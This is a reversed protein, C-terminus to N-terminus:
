SGEREHDPRDTDFGCQGVLLNQYRVDRMEKMSNSIVSPQLAASRATIAHGIVANGSFFVSPILCKALLGQGLSRAFLLAQAVHRPHAPRSCNPGVLAMQHHCLAFDLAYPWTAEPVKPSTRGWSKRRQWGARVYSKVHAVEAAATQVTVM